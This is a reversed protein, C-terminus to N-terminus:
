SGIKERILEANKVLTDGYAETGDKETLSTMIDLKIVKIGNAEFYAETQRPVQSEMLIVDIENERMLALMTSLEQESHEQASLRDIVLECFLGMEKATYYLAKHGAAVKITGDIAQERIKEALRDLYERASALNRYYEQTYAEDIALLNATIAEAMQVAGETSMFMWPNELTNVEEGESSVLKVDDMSYKLGSVTSIVIKDGSSVSAEFGEYGGGNLMLVDCGGILALDWDSLMYASLGTDQPQLFMRLEMGPIDKLIMSGLAYVPYSSAYVLFTEEPNPLAFKNAVVFTFLASVCIVLALVLTFVHKLKM